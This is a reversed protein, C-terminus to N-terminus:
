RDGISATPRRRDKPSGKEAEILRRVTRALDPWWDKESRDLVKLAPRAVEAFTKTGYRDLAILYADLAGPVAATTPDGSGPVRGGKHKQFYEVTALRPAVGQGSVVEVVNRNADYVIIPVEGGFCFNGSDTVSLVLMAAVAADVANGESKLVAIAADAAEAGGAAVAGQTGSAKWFGPPKPGAIAERAFCALLFLVALGLRPLRSM